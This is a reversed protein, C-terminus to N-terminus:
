NNQQFNYKGNAGMGVHALPACVAARFHSSLTTEPTDQLVVYMFGM